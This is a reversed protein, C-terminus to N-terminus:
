VLALLLDLLALLLLAVEAEQSVKVAVGGRHNYKHVETHEIACGVLVCRAQKVVCINFNSSFKSCMHQV